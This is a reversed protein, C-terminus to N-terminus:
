QQYEGKMQQIIDRLKEASVNEPALVDGVVLEIKSWVRRFPKKLVLGDKRSFFSGWLGKLALPTVPVPNRQLIKEVGPKFENTNGDITLKGEPFICVLEGNELANGIEEFAKQYIAENEKQSTIPIAKGTRFIFNLVPIRYIPEYIVFRIPRKCAGTIILGDVYSVHNSVLLAPGEDPINELHYHKVRYMIHTLIWVLFRMTFEPIVTYIFIAVAVNMVTITLFFQPITLGAVGLLLAGAIAACVMLLANFVNNAAIVRARHRAETKMQVYAFLPVIYFGGFLGIFLLDILVRISGPTGIFERLGMLYDIAPTEYAFFLDFGFISLGLSGLPVLGIEVKKGSLKECLLSGVGVGISFMTLLMTVVSESSKLILRSYNPIQTLYAAGLFWFWSIGLISLFVPRKERAFAIIKWTQTLPNWHIKLDGSAPPATPIFLSTIWGTVAISCVTISVWLTGKEFQILIGSVLTGLLISVFTGMGVMANGGVIEAEHLHQPIISYKIPGFFTSQAGMLFLLLLLAYIHNYLLAATALSMIIIEMFKIRRILFSKDYKDAIQGAMASFLFFPLIFLGAAMNILIDSKLPLSASFAIILILANKYVNDNFAGWFQTWFFPAFRRTTMLQFQSKDRSSKSPADM